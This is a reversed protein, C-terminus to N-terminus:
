CSNIYKNDMHRGLETKFTQTTQTTPTKQKLGERKM